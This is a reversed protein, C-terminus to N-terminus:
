GGNGVKFQFDAADLAGPNALGKIDVIIGNIGLSYSTYNAFTAKQGPLLAAKDTAIAASDSTGDFKSNNYFIYRGAITSYVNVAISSTVSQAFHDTITVQFSYSGAKSFTAITNKADHTGNVSFNVAAPGTASWTYILNAEGGNDNGQVSLTSTTTPLYVPNPTASAAKAVTPASDIAAGNITVNDFTSTNLYLQDRSCVAVGVYISNSMSITSTGVFTWTLGDSSIYGTFVNGVRQLKFWIPMVMNTLDTGASTSGNITTRMQWRAANYKSDLFVFVNQAGADTSSRMMLGVKDDLITTTTGLTECALRAIITCDGTVSRYAFQLSDATGGVNSGSGHVILESAIYNTSGATTVTGIDQSYWSSPLGTSVSEVMSNYSEGNANSASVVYLYATGSSVTSDVFTTGTLGTAITTYAGGSALARKVNYTAAGSSATWQLSVHSSTASALLLLPATPVPAADYSDSLYLVVTSNPGVTITGSLTEGSVLDEASTFGVPTKLEYSTDSTTNIGILYHGFRLAYFNAKGRYPSDERADGPNAAIPLLEGAYANSPNDPPTFATTIPNDIMNPRVYYSGSYTFQPDTELVGYQVYQGNDYEFRGIGNVGTGDKAQWYPEIWLRDTGHKIVVIGDQEDAWAFDPQGDTMPLRIGSDTSNKVANYDNWAYLAFRYDLNVTGSAFYYRPDAILQSLYQGDALMQKAYGIAYPDLTVGAVRMGNSWPGQDGYAIEDSFYGDAERVGRWALLGVREMSRYYNSGVVDIAPTRMYAIAKEMKIAQNKFDVNGTWDYFNAAYVQMESYGGAYGWERTLGDETVQYYNSGYKLSSGGGVLDSGLWPLLGISEKLYRQANNETFANANGLDLLGRNAKYINEDAILSQNTLYRSDRSFRGYDRSGLLMDGWAQRRTINGGTGYNVVTDLSSQLQPLLLHIAWGLPGFRGGWVENGGAAGYNDAGTVANGTSTPSVYPSAYYDTAFGDIVAIVKSVINANQYGNSLQSVSYAQALIAVQETNFTTIAATLRGSVWSNIGTTYTGTPGLVSSETPTTLTTTTPATGQTEGSVDLLPDTHTYARYIGRSPTDMNFQYNGSPPGGSGLGYLEGTSIITLTISTKGQTMSLPLLTTSYFFQGPLPQKSATVSLPAYDGEHRYGVQYNVGDVPIYLYLRGKGSDTDDSGWLKITFYNRKVPDVTMTFTMDGGNVAVTSLPLLQRATQSLGGTIVQSSNQSFAHNTESTTSGFVITDLPAAALSSATLTSAADTTLYTTDTVAESTVTAVQSLETLLNVASTEDVVSSGSLLMRPELHEFLYRAKVLPRNKKSRTGHWSGKLWQRVAIAM